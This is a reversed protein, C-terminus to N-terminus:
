GDSCHANRRAWAKCIGDRDCSRGLLDPLHSCSGLICSLLMVKTNRLLYKKSFVPSSTNLVDDGVRETKGMLSSAGSRSRIDSASCVM